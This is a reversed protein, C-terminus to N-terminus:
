WLRLDRHTLPTAPTEAPTRGQEISLKVNPLNPLVYKGFLKCEELLPYGSLIFSRVGMDMYRNLKALVQDPTGVIAGGCGSRARGIGTWLMPEVFDDADATKRFEDQRLVGASKSDQTRNKLKEAVEADFRSML